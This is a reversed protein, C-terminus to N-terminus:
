ARLPLAFAYRGLKGEDPRKAAVGPVLGPPLSKERLRM